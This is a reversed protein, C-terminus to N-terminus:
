GSPGFGAAGAKDRRNHAVNPRAFDLELSGKPECQTSGIAVSRVSLTSHLIHAGCCDFPTQFSAFSPM